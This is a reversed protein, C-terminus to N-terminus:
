PPSTKQHRGNVQKVLDNLSNFASGLDLYHLFADKQNGVDVFAANLGGM